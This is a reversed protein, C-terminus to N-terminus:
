SNALAGKRARYREICETLSERLSTGSQWGLLDAAKRFSGVRRRVDTAPVPTCCFSLAATNSMLGRTLAIEWIMEALERVSVCEDRGINLIQDCTSPAFSFGAIVEAAERLHLFSRVQNGDGLVTLPNEQKGIIRHILDAFVHSLGADDSGEEEPDIVNFPRWITYQLGYQGRFARSLREGVLKSLGYDTAPVLATEVDDEQYPESSVREYVMSSSMYVVREVGAEVSLRLVTQHLNLDNALIDAARRHFGIVGYLTAAAQIIGDVGKLLPRMLAADSCDGCVFQYDRPKDTQGWKAGSDVGLVEHGQSLLLPIVASMIRGQSGCILIKM